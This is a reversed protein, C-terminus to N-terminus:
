VTWCEVNENLLYHHYPMCQVPLPYSKYSNSLLDTLDTLEIKKPYVCRPSTKMYEMMSYANLVSLSQRCFDKPSISSVSQKFWHPQYSYQLVASSIQPPLLHPEFWSHHCARQPLLHHSHLCHHFCIHPLVLPGLCRCRVVELRLYCYGGYISGDRNLEQPLHIDTVHCAFFNTMTEIYDKISNAHVKHTNAM